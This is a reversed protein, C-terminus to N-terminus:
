KKKPFAASLAAGRTLAAVGILALASLSQLVAYWAPCLGPILDVGILAIPSIATLTRLRDFDRASGQSARGAMRHLLPAAALLIAGRVWMFPTVTHGAFAMVTVTALVIASIIGFLWVCKNVTAFAEAQLSNDLQATRTTQANATVNAM